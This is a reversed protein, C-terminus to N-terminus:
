EGKEESAKKEANIKTLIRAIEKRITTLRRPNQLEGAALGRRAEILEARKQKLQEDLPLTSEKKEVKKTTKKVDAM